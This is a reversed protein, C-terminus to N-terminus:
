CKKIELHEWFITIAFIGEEDMWGHIRASLFLAFFFTGPDSVEEEHLQQMCRAQAEQGPETFGLVIPKPCPPLCTWGLPGM